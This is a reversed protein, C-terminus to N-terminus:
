STEDSGMKIGAVLNGIFAAPLYAILDVVAFWTPHPVTMLNGIGGIFFLVGIIIAGAM